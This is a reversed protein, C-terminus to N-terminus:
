PRKVISVCPVVLSRRRHHWDRYNQRYLSQAVSPVVATWNGTPYSIRKAVVDTSARLRVRGWIWNNDFNTRGPRLPLHTYSVLWRWRPGINLILPVIGGGWVDAYRPAYNLLLFLNSNICFLSFCFLFLVSLVFPLFLFSFYGLLTMIKSAWTRAYYYKGNAVHEYNFYHVGYNFHNERSSLTMRNMYSLEWSDVRSEDTHVSVFGRFGTLPQQVFSSTYFILYCLFM